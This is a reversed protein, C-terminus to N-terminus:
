NEKQQPRLFFHEAIKIKQQHHLFVDTRGCDKKRKILNHDGSYSSIKHKKKKQTIL